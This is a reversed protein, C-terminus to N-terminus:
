DEESADLFALISDRFRDFHQLDQQLSDYVQDFDVVWYEHALINRFGVMGQMDSVLESPLIKEEALIAFLDRSAAPKRLGLAAVIHSAIDICAQIAIILSYCTADRVLPTAKFEECSLRRTAELKERESSLRELKSLISQLDLM